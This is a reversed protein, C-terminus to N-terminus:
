PAIILANVARPAASFARGLESEFHDGRVDSKNMKKLLMIRQAAIAIRHLALRKQQGRKRVIVPINSVARFTVSADDHTKATLLGLPAAAWAM